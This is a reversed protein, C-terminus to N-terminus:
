TIGTMQLDVQMMGNQRQNIPVPDNTLWAFGVERPYSQPRWAFFFPEEYAHQVFPEFYTRYWAPTLNQLGVKTSTMQNLIIRGLFNGSESKGNVAKTTRSYNIPQHGVYIRRQLVLLAGAYVVAARPAETGPQLRIRLAEYALPPFRFLVPGDNPLFVPAILEEWAAPSQEDDLYEVSVAIEATGWNHRAVAVYDIPDAAAVNLTIYEDVEPSALLGEWRLNTSVNALNVAPHDPDETTTSLNGSTVLSHYGIVPNDGTITGGGSISETIVYSNSIVVTM